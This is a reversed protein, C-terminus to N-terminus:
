RLTSMPRETGDNSFAYGLTSAEAAGTQAPLSDGPLLSPYSQTQADKAVYASSFAMNSFTNNVLEAGGEVGMKWYDPGISSGRVSSEANGDWSLIIFLELSIRVHGHAPLDKLKLTLKNTTFPGLMKRGRPTAEVTRASWEEGVAKELDLVYVSTGASVPLAFVMALLLHRIAAVSM